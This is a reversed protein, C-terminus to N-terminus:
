NKVVKQFYVQRSTEIKVWYIGQPLSAIDVAQDPLVNEKVIMLKGTMDYLTVTFTKINSSTPLDSFYFFQSTPNPSIQLSNKTLLNEGLSLPTGELTTTGTNLPDLYPSLQLTDATGNSSWHYSFKGFYDPQNLSASDCSAQGGTLTGVLLGESNFLPSGSSGGETVGHGNSTASWVVKWHTGPTSEWSSSVPPSTFTSIKKLDGQPHHICVGSQAPEDKRSWGAFYARAGSPIGNILTLLYFDSGLKGDPSDSAAKKRGGITMKKEPELIPNPCGESEYNFFFQWQAVNEPTAGKGCHNATLIYPTKDRATNNILVGTCWYVSQQNRILIRVVADRQDKWADGEPCNVNVECAGSGGILTNEPYLVVGIGSLLLELDNELSSPLNWILEISEGQVMPLSVTEHSLLEWELKRAEDSEKGSSYYLEAEKPISLKRFYLILGQAGSVQIKVGGTLTKGQIDKLAVQKLDILTDYVKGVPSVWPYISSNDKNSNFFISPLKVQVVTAQHNSYKAVASVQKNQASLKTGILFFIGWFLMSITYSISNNKM